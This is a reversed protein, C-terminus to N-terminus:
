DLDLGDDWLNTSGFPTSGKDEDLRLLGDVDM